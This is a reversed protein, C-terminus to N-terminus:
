LVICMKLALSPQMINHASGSVNGINDGATTSSGSYTHTHAGATAIAAQGTFVGSADGWNQTSGGGGSYMDLVHSHDGNSTTTGSWSFGHTHSKFGTESSTLVHTEEGLTAGLSRTTLGSGTGEGIIARGRPDPLTGSAGYTTGVISIVYANTGNAALTQGSCQVMRAPVTAGPWMVVTGSSGDAAVWYTGDYVEKRKLTTNWIEDGETATLNDRQATTMRPFRVAATTSDVVIASTVGSNVLYICPGSNTQTVKIVGKNAALNASNTLLILGENGSNAMSIGLINSSITWSVVDTMTDLNDAGINGAAWNSIADLNSNQGSATVVNGAVYPTLSLTAM